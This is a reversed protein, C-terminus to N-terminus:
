PAEDLRLNLGGDIGQLAYFSTPVSCIDHKWHDRDVIGISKLGM